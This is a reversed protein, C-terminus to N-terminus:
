RQDQHRVAGWRGGSRCAGPIRRPHPADHNSTVSTTTLPATSSDHPAISRGRSPPRPIQRCPRALLNIELTREHKFPVPAPTLSDCYSLCPSSSVSTLPSRASTLCVGHSADCGGDICRWTWERGAEPLPSDTKIAHPWRVGNLALCGHWTCLQMGVTLQGRTEGEGGKKGQESTSTAVAALVGAAVNLGM